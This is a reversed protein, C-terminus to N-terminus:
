AFVWAEKGWPFTCILDTSLSYNKFIYIVMSLFILLDWLSPQGSFFQHRQVTTSSFVESLGKSLLSILGTLGLSFWDQINMLPSISFSWFKPSFSVWQFLGPHQSLKPAPLSPPCCLVLHDSPMVSEISTLRFLSRSITFSLSAQRAVTWPTLLSISTVSYSFQVSSFM